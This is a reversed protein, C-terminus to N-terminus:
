KVVLRLVRIEDFDHAKYEQLTCKDTNMLTVPQWVERAAANEYPLISLLTQTDKMKPTLGGRVVNDSNIM